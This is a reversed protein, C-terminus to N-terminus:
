TSRATIAKVADAITAHVQVLPHHRFSLGVSSPLVAHVQRGSALAAGMEVLAGCHNENELMVLLLAQSNSAERVCQELSCVVRGLITRSHQLQAALGRIDLGMARLAQWRPHHKAKSACYIRLTNSSSKTVVAGITPGM